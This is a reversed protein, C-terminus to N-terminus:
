AGAPQLRGEGPRPAKGHGLARSLEEATRRLVPLAARRRAETFRFAPGSISLAALVAGSGDRVPAAITASGEVIEGLATATGQRRVKRLETWIRAPTAPTRPTFRRLPVTDLVREIELDPLFALLIKGPAGAYLPYLRGIEVTWRIDHPSEVQVLYTRASQVRTSLGV